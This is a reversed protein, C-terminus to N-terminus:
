VTNYKIRSKFDNLYTSIDQLYKNIPESDYKVEGGENYIILYLNTSQIDLFEIIEKIRIEPVIKIFETSTKFQILKEKIVKIKMRAIEYKQLGINTEIEGIVEIAETVDSISLGLILKDKTDHITMQTVVSIEKIAIIQIYAITLGFVSAMTGIISLVNILDKKNIILIFFLTLVIGAM